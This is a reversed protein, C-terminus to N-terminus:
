LATIIGRWHPKTAFLAPVRDAPGVRFAGQRAHTGSFAPRCSSLVLVASAPQTGFEAVPGMGGAFLLRQSRAFCFASMDTQWAAM